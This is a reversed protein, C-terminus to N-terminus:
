PLDEPDHGPSPAEKGANRAAVALAAGAVSALLAGRPQPHSLRGALGAGIAHVAGTLGGAWTAALVVAVPLSRGRVLLPLVAAAAAWAVGAVLVGSSLLPWLAHEAAGGVSRSWAGRPWTGTAPGYYLARGTLPEALALWWFGLAGLAARRRLTRAQGALAPFAGAALVVGLAPAGAPASWAPGWRRLLPLVPLAAAGVVLATGPRHAGLALWAVTAVAGLAWGLRPLLAVLAAALAAAPLAGFPPAPGLDALALAVLAGATLAALAREGLPGPARRRTADVRSARFLASSGTEARAPAVTGPDDSAASLGATLGARLDALTGRGAPRPGLARDIADAAAAPVDRRVRRLPAIPQGVRRATVAPSDARVPNVGALGEYLVLALAYLDASPGVPRGEAQEPAMYALTGVVDGTRTLAEEGALRAVGFDTLKVIGAGGQPREPVIVNSPKVDRHVVGHAHAHGLADCLAVGMRLVDRDSLAGDAFLAALTRGDVLESVLYAHEDDAGAEFLTVIGPHGLRASAFAEREARDGSGPERSIVKVAVDRELREDRARWVVGYGGAGLRRRLTYRGLVRMGAGSAPGRAARTRDEDM